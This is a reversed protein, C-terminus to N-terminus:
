NQTSNKLLKIQELAAAFIDSKEPHKKILTKYIKTARDYDKQELYIKALTESVINLREMNSSKGLDAYVMEKSFDENQFSIKPPNNKFNKVLEDLSLESSEDVSLKINGSIFKYLFVHDCCLVSLNMLEDRNKTNYVKMLRALQFYPYESIVKDLDSPIDKPNKCFQKLKCGFEESTM